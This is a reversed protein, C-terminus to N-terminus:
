VYCLQLKGKFMLNFRNIPIIYQGTDTVFCTM